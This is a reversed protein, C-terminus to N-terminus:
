RIGFSAGVQIHGTLALVVIAALLAVGVYFSISM